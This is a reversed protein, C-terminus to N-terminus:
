REAKIRTRKPKADAVTRLKRDVAEVTDPPIFEPLAEALSLEEPLVYFLGSKRFTPSVVKSYFAPSVNICGFTIRNDDPTASALRKKRREKRDVEDVPHISVATAYDVWLVTKGKAAPGYGAFFRGAPTTRNEPAIESLDKVEGVGPDSRDGTAAGILVPALGKLEGKANFVLLQAAEKDVVAFPLGDNDRSALVWAAVEIVRESVQQAPDVEDLAQAHALGSACVALGFAVAAASLRFASIPHEQRPFGRFRLSGRM